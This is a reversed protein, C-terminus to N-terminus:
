QRRRRRSGRITCRRVTGQRPPSPKPSWPQWPLAPLLARSTLCCRPRRLSPPLSSGLSCGLSNHLVSPEQRSFAPPVLRGPPSCRAACSSSSSSSSNDRYRQWAAALWGPLELARARTGAVCTRSASPPRGGSQSCCRHGRALCQSNGPAVDAARLGCWQPAPHSCRRGDGLAKQRVCVKGRSPM